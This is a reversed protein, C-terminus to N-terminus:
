KELVGHTQRLPVALAFGMALAYTVLELGRPLGWSTSVLRGGLLLPIVVSLPLLFGRSQPFPTHPVSSRGYWVATTGLAAGLTAPMFAGSPLAVAVLALATAAPFLHGPDLAPRSAIVAITLGLVAGAVVDGVYHVGLVLRSLAVLTIVGAGLAHRHTPTRWDATIALGGYVAAAGLTHGSPFSYGGYDDPAFALHTVPRELLITGKLCATLGFAVLAIGLVRAGRDRDAHYWFFGTAIVLLVAPDGLHTAAEIAPRFPAPVATRVTETAGPEFVWAAITPANM